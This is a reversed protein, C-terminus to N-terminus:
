VLLHDLDVGSRRRRRPNTKKSPETPTDQDELIFGKTVNDM